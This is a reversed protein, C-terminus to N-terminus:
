KLMADCDDIREDNDLVAVVTSFRRPNVADMKKCDRDCYM